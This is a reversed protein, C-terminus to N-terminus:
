RFGNGINVLVVANGAAAAKLYTWALGQVDPLAGVCHYVRVQAHSAAFAGPFTRCRDNIGNGAM